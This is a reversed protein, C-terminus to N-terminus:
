VDAVGYPANLKILELISPLPPTSSKDFGANITKREEEPSEGIVKILNEFKSDDRSVAPRQPIAEKLNPDGSHRFCGQCLFTWKKTQDNIHGYALEGVELKKGCESCNNGFKLYM